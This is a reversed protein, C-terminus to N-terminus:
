EDYGSEKASGESEMEEIKGDAHIRIGRSAAIMRGLFVLGEIEILLNWFDRESLRLAADTVRIQARPDDPFVVRWIADGTEPDSENKLVVGWPKLRTNLWNDWRRLGQSRISGSNPM